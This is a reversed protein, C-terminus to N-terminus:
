EDRGGDAIANIRRKNTESVRDAVNPGNNSTDDTGPKGELRELLLKVWAINTKGTDILQGSIDDWEQGLAALWVRRALAEAKTVVITKGTDPNTVLETAETGIGRLYESFARGSRHKEGLERLSGKKSKRPPKSM